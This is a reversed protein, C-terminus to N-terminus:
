FVSSQKSQHVEEKKKTATSFPPSLFFVFCEELFIAYDGRAATTCVGREYVGYM